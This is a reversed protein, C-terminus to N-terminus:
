DRDDEDHVVATSFLSLAKSFIVTNYVVSLMMQVLTAMYSAWLAPRIDGFGVTSMVTASFYLFKWFLALYEVEASGASKGKSAGVGVQSTMGLKGGHAIDEAPYLGLFTTSTIRYMLTYLGTFLVLTSLYSQVVFWGSATRHFVQKGLKVSVVVIFLLHVVQFLMLVLISLDFEVDESPPADAMSILVILNIIQWLVSILLINDILWPRLVPNSKRRRKRGGSGGVGVRDGTAHGLTRRLAACETEIRDLSRLVDRVDVQQPESVDVHNAAPGVLPDYSMGAPDLVSLNGVLPTVQQTEAAERARRAAESAAAASGADAAFYSLRTTLRNGM